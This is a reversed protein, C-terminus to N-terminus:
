AGYRLEPYREMTLELGDRLLAFFNDPYPGRVALELRREKHDVRVLGYHKRDRDALLVGNRWHLGLSFRHERAIFWTPIGSPVTNFAHRLPPRSAPRQESRGGLDAPLGPPDVPLRSVVLTRDTDPIRYALDFREMLRTLRTRYEPAWEDWIRDAVKSTLIGRDLDDDGHDFVRSILRNVQWPNLLVIDRLEPDDPFYLLGGLDNYWRIMAEFADGRLEHEKALLKRLAELSYYHQAVDPRSHYKQIGEITKMAEVWNTPYTANMLPLDAAVRAVIRTLEDIGRLPPKNSVVLSAVIPYKKQWEKIPLAPPDREDLHTAVLVVPSEPARTKITDLWYELRDQDPDHRSNWVLLCLARDTLFFQHTAHYIQQGGFDWASLQMTVGTEDPHPLEWARYAEMGHTTLENANFPMGLLSRLTCTKGVGGDGVLVMKSLRLKRNGHVSKSRLYAIIAKVGQRIIDSPPDTLSNDDLKLNTLNTLRGMEIPLAQLWCGTLNLSTLNTLRGIEAPLARLWCGTIDLSTLNTLRGIEAPLIRLKNGTLKLSTLRTLRGIGAPLATLENVTLVLSTLNTLRGIGDPLATMQNGSLDLSTLRTLRGVEAPLATLQIGSLVLSTLNALRCIGDPLIRLKDGTLKLSTLNTLRGIGAPLATMQDGSIDLSTLRTLRGIGDPLIRLKDGTLKLSTLNTLRGIADPLATLQNGSLDLSTLNTLRGIADPLATLQNGTLKLSTLNTLRGIADPLATLQNGSLDLSTLNTLRGIADPLATLQNGSLDLSTLNTLRGIADPLATLQNGSLDLSTLNTLRGIEPPLADM